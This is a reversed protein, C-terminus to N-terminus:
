YNMRISFLIQHNSSAGNLGFKNGLYYRYKKFNFSFGAGLSFPSKDLISLQTYGEFPNQHYDLATIIYSNNLIRYAYDASLHAINKLDVKQNNKFLKSDSLLLSGLNINWRHKQYASSFLLSYGLDLEKSGTLENNDGTPLKLRLNHSWSFNNKNYIAHKMDISIDSLALKGKEQNLLLASPNTSDYTFYPKKNWKIFPIDIKFDLPINNTGKVLTHLPISSSLTAKFITSDVTMTQTGSSTSEKFFANEFKIDLLYKSYNPLLYASKLEPINFVTSFGNLSGISLPQLIRRSSPRKKSLLKKINISSTLNQNPKTSKFSNEIKYWTKVLTIYYDQVKKSLEVSEVDKLLHNAQEIRNLARAIDNIKYYKKSEKYLVKVQHEPSLNQNSQSEANINFSIALIFLSLIYLRPKM